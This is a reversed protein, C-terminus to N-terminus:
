SPTQESSTPRRSVSRRTCAAGISTGDLLLIQGKYALEFNSYGTWRIALTAANSPFAGGTSVLTAVQCAADTTEVRIPRRTPERQAVLSSIAISILGSALLFRIKVRKEGDQRLKIVARPAM